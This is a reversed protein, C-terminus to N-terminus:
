ADAAILTLSVTGPSVRFREVGVVEFSDMETEVESKLRVFRLQSLPPMQISSVDVVFSVAPGHHFVGTEGLLFREVLVDRSMGAAEPPGYARVTPCDIEREVLSVKGAIRVKSVLMEGLIFDARQLTYEFAEPRGFVQKPLLNREDVQDAVANFIESVAPSARFSAALAEMQLEDLVSHELTLTLEVNTYSYSYLLVRHSQGWEAVEGPTLSQLDRLVVGFRRAKKIAGETFGSDSVAILGDANLSARRGILEEIWKVDQRAQHLRCEVLTLRGDRKISIDIQRLQTPNDPDPVRDDWTVETGPQEVLEHIRHVFQEFAESPPRVIVQLVALPSMLFMFIAARVWASPDPRSIFCPELRGNRRAADVVCEAALFRPESGGDWSEGFPPFPYISLM